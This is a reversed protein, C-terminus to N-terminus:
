PRPTSSQIARDLFSVTDREGHADAMERAEQMARKSIAKTAMFVELVDVYGNMAAGRFARYEGYSPDIAPENNFIDQVVKLEGHTAACVLQTDLTLYGPGYYHRM